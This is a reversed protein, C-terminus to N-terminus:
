ALAAERAARAYIPGTGDGIWLHKALDRAPVM